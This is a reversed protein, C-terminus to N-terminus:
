AEAEPHQWGAHRVEIVVPWDVVQEALHQLRSRAREGFHFSQPFQVLLASLRGAERLPRLGGLTAAIDSEDAPDPDHSWSRHAKACFRFRPGRAETRRLWSEATRPAVPRYFTSNIELVDVYRSLYALRDIGRGVPYVTGTWDAYDWGAVGIRLDCRHAVRNMAFCGLRVRNSV